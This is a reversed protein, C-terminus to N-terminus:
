YCKSTKREVAVEYRLSTNLEITHFIARYDITESQSFYCLFDNSKKIKLFILYKKYCSYITKNILLIKIIVVIKRLYKAFFDASCKRAKKFKRWFNYITNTRKECSICTFDVAISTKLQVCSRTIAVRFMIKIVDLM